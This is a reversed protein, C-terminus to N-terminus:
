FNIFICKVECLAPTINFSYSGFYCKGSLKQYVSLIQQTTYSTFCPQIYLVEGKWATEEFFVYFYRRNKAYISGAYATVVLNIIHYTFLPSHFCPWIHSTSLHSHQISTLAYMNNMFNFVTYFCNSTTYFILINIQKTKKNEPYQTIMIKSKMKINITAKTQITM